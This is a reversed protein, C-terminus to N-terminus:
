KKSKANEMLERAGALGAETVEAGSMLKAVEEVREELELKRLVTAARKRDEVKEVVFHADALGAIQPLHTIAIVQHFRSLSKMSRGVAQAIRGSVGVDIEDFILLPLRDSKALISKLALMVRSIEGGSAVRTLQKPDEGLNTSLFFEVRDIGRPGAEYYERGLKVYARILGNTGRGVELRRNEILVDFVANAIGLKLLEAVVARNIKQVCERRKSALREAAESCRGREEEIARDLAALEKEFNEALSFEAAIRERQELISKISGGYKKKLLSLQGLRQRIEELRDPNFEIRANYAQLFKAVEAVIVAASACENRAEELNRDIRALDELQNRALVLQDAVAQEGEYLMQHLRTTAEFLKEANQLVRLETELSEEEEPQPQVADIERLQFEFLDRREKLAAERERLNELRNFLDTLRDYSAHYEDVLGELGGFDDLYEIHSQPRLLSQHDHQGHLDVLLDGIAKLVNLTVPTDNVFCRNQGKASVERRLILEESVDLGEVELFNKIKKNSAVEFTGEVITKDAGTRISESSAREGLILGLADVLISKGAGTEGTIINLGPEFVAEVNDIIAYKRISISKLM